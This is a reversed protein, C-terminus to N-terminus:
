WAIHLNRNYIENTLLFPSTHSNSRDGILMADIAEVRDSWPKGTGKARKSLVVNPFPSSPV